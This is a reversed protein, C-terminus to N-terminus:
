MQYEKARVMHIPNILRSDDVNKGEFTLNGQLRLKLRTIVDVFPYVHLRAVYPKNIGSPISEKKTVIALTSNNELMVMDGVSSCEQYDLLAM